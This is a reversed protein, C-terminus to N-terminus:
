LISLHHNFSIKTIVLAFYNKNASVGKQCNKVVPLNKKNFLWFTVLGLLQARHMCVPEQESGIWAYFSLKHKYLEEYHIDSGQVVNLMSFNAFLHLHWWLRWFTVLAVFIALLNCTGLFYFLEHYSSYVTPLTMTIAIPSRCM